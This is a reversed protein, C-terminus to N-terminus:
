RMEAEGSAEAEQVELGAVGARMRVVEEHGDGDEANGAGDMEVKGSGSGDGVDGDEARGEGGELADLRGLLWNVMEEKGAREAEFAADCGAANRAELLARQRM